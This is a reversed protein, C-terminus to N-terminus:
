KTTEGDMLVDYGQERFQLRYQEITTKGYYTSIELAAVVEEAFNDQHVLTHMQKPREQLFARRQSLEGEIRKTGAPSQPDGGVGRTPVIVM